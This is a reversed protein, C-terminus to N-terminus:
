FESELICLSSWVVILLYHRNYHRYIFDIYQELGIRAIIINGINVANVQWADRHSLYKRPKRKKTCILHQLFGSHHVRSGLISRLRTLVEDDVVSYEFSLNTFM